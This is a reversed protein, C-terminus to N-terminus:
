KKQCGVNGGGQPMPSAMHVKKRVWHAANGGGQPLLRTCKLNMHVKSEDSTMDSGLASRSLCGSCAMSIESKTHSPADYKM